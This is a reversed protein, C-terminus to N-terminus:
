RVAVSYACADAETSIGSGEDHTGEVRRTSGGDLKVRYRKTTM